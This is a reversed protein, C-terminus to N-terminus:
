KGMIVSTIVTISEACHIHAVKSVFVNKTVSALQILRGEVSATAPLCLVTAVHRHLVAEARVSAAM